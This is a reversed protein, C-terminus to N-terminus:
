KYQKPVRRWRHIGNRVGNAVAPLCNTLFVILLVILNCIQVVFPQLVNLFCQLLCLWVRHFISHKHASDHFIVRSPHFQVTWCCCLGYKDASWPFHHAILWKHWNLALLPYLQLPLTSSPPISNCRCCQMLFSLTVWMPISSSILRYTVISYQVCRWQTRVMPCFPFM